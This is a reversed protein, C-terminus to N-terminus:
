AANEKNNLADLADWSGLDAWDFGATYLHGSSVNECFAKDFSIAPIRSYAKFGDSSLAGLLDPMIHAAAELFIPVHLLFIGSNWLAGEAILAAAKEVEPKEHFVIGKATDQIYGYGSYPRGPVIGFYSIMNGGKAAIGIDHSFAQVNRICHDSPLVLIYQFCQEHGHLAALLVPAATNRMMPELFIASPNGQIAGIQEKIHAEHRFNGFLIPPAFYRDDAVRLITQQLLTLDEHVLAHFQKPKDASSLPALRRGEGGCLIVPLIKRQEGPM